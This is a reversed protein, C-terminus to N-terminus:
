TRPRSTIASNRPGWQGRRDNNRADTKGGRAANFTTYHSVQFTLGIAAMVFVMSTGGYSIFPLTIGKLPVLGLMAGINMVAQIGIWMTVGVVVLRTREDPAQEAISILKRLLAGFIIILIVCGIFGFKEAFVAFISDNAAEPLYGYAQVSNGLGLGVVGGSGVAILAQNIHYGAGLVDSSPHLFTLFRDRRYPTSWVAILVLFSVALSIAMIRQLPVGAIFLMAAAVGVIVIMSGLDRQVLTIVLAMAGISYVIPLLSQKADKISSTRIREALFDAALIIFSFKALEAPQLSIGGITVWRTPSHTALSIGITVLAGILAGAASGLGLLRWSRIPVKAVFGFCLVGLLVALLQKKVFYSGDVNRVAALGPSIAYIVVLGISLLVLPLVVVTYDPRHRRGFNDIVSRRQRTFLSGGQGIM